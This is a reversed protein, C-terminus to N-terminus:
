GSGALSRQKVSIGSYLTRCGGFQWWTKSQGQGHLDISFSSKDTNALKNQVNMYNEPSEDTYPTYIYDAAKLATIVDQM